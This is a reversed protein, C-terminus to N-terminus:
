CPIITDIAIAAVVCERTRGSVVDQESFSAVVAECAACIIVDENEAYGEALIRDRVEDDAGTRIVDDLEVILDEGVERRHQGCGALDAGIRQDAVIGVVRDCQLVDRHGVEVGVIEPEHLGWITEMWAPAPETRALRM